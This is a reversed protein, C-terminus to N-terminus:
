GRLSDVVIAARQGEDAASYAIALRGPFYGRKYAHLILSLGCLGAAAGTDGLTLAPLWLPFRDKNRRLLRTVVLSQEKFAYSEGAADSARVDMDHMDLAAEGLAERAATVIGQGRLPVDNSLLGPEMGFGIGRIIGQAGQAHLALLVAVAAEGPHVLLRQLLVQQGGVDDIGLRPFRRPAVHRWPLLARTM